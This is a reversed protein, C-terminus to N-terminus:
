HFSSELTLMFANTGLPSTYGSSVRNEANDPTVWNPLSDAAEILLFQGDDDKIEIAADPWKRSIESLLWVIYWEDEVSEGVRTAGTLYQQLRSESLSPSKITFANSETVSLSFPERQWIYDKALEDVYALISTATAQLSAEDFSISSAQDAPPRPPFHISYVCVDNTHSGNQRPADGSM